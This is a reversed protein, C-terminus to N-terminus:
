LCDGTLGCMLWLASLPFAVLGVLGALCTAILRTSRALAHHASLWAAAFPLVAPVALALVMAMFYGVESVRVTSWISAVAAGGLICAGLGGVAIVRCKRHPALHGLAAGVVAYAMAIISYENLWLQVFANM